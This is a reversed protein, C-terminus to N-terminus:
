SKPRSRSPEDINNRSALMQEHQAEEVGELALKELATDTDDDPGVRNPSQRGRDSVPESPDRTMAPVLPEDETIGDPLEQNQLERRAAHRDDDTAEMRGAILALEHARRELMGPSAVGLGDGGTEIKPTKKKSM